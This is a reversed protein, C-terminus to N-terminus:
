GIEKRANHEHKPLSVAEALQGELNAQMGQLLALDEPFDLDLALTPRRVVELRARAQHAMRSHQEFSAPGFAYGITGPPSILMANTGLEHRDPALAVVRDANLCALLADLDAVTLLPLDAPLVLVARLQYAMTLATARELASNLHSAGHELLTRANFERAIALAEPDRSTVLAQSIGSTEGLIKLTHELLM